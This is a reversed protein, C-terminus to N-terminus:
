GRRIVAAPVAIDIRRATAMATISKLRNGVNLPTPSAVGTSAAHLLRRQFGVARGGPGLEYGSTM